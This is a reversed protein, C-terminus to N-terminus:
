SQLASVHVITSGTVRDAVTRSDDSLALLMVDIIMGLGLTLVWYIQKFIERILMRLWGFRTGDSRVAAMGLLQKGPTQGRMLAFVLWVVYAIAVYWYAVIFAWIVVEILHAAVRRMPRASMEDLYPARRPPEPGDSM